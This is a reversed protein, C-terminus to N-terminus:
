WDLHNLNFVPGDKCALSYGKKHKPVACAGCEGIGACPMPTTLLVQAPCPLYEHPELHLFHRLEQLDSLRLDLALFDAWAIAEPIAKLPQIEIAPPISPLPADCFVAIDARQALLIPILPLLRSASEGLAILGLRNIAPPISFGHGLPGRLELRTGPHWGRPIPGLSVAEPRGSVGITAPLGAPFLSFGLTAEPENPNHAQLYQGPRPLIKPNCDVQATREGAPEIQILSIKGTDMHM